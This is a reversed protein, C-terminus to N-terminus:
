FLKSLDINQIVTFAVMAGGIVIWTWKELNTLRDSLEKHQEQSEKRIEKLEELIKNHNEEMEEKLRSEVNEMRKGVNNISRETESKRKEMEVKIETTVKEQSDLRNTHVAIIQSVSTFVDSVKDITNDLRDVLLSIKAMDKELDILKSM